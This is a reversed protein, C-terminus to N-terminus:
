SLSINCLAHNIFPSIPHTFLILGFVVRGQRQGIGRLFKGIQEYSAPTARDMDDNDSIPPMWELPSLPARQSMGLLRPSLATVVAAGSRRRLWTKWGKATGIM